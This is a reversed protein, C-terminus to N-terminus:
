SAVEPSLTRRLKEYARHVKQKVSGVSSATASAVEELSLGSVKMMTLVERQSAPLTAILEEFPPGEYQESKAPNVEPLIDVAQEHRDVRSRRRYADIGTHRAISYLWPLFPESSRYTHRVKHLRLWCDQVLDQAAARTIPQSCYFRYLRPTVEEVLQSAAASDGQQYAAMLQRFLEREEAM